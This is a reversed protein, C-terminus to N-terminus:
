LKRLKALKEAIRQKVGATEEVEIVASVVEGNKIEVQLWGDQKAESPLVKRLTVIQEQGDNLLLVAQDREFRDIVVKVFVQGDRRKVMVEGEKLAQALLAALKQRAESYTYIKM